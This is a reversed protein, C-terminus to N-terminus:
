DDPSIDHTPYTSPVYMGTHVISTGDPNPLVDFNCIGTDRSNATGPGYDGYGDNVPNAWTLLFGVEYHGPTLHGVNATYFVWYNGSREVPESRTTMPLAATNLKVSYIANAIHEDMQAQTKTFWSWYITVSDSDYIIGPQALPYPACQAFILGPTESRFNDSLRAGIVVDPEASLNPNLAGGNPALISTGVGAAASASSTSGSETSTVVTNAPSGCGDQTDTLVYSFDIVSSNSERAISVTASAQGGAAVTLGSNYSVQDSVAYEGAVPVQRLNTLATGSGSAGSFIQYYIDFGILSTGTFDLIASDACVFLTGQSENTPGVTTPVPTSTATQASSRGAGTIIAALLLTTLAIKKM